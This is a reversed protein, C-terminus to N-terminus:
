NGFGIRLGLQFNPASKETKQTHLDYEQTTDNYTSTYYDRTTNAIGVGIFSEFAINSDQFIQKSIILSIGTKVKTDQKGELSTTLDGSDTYDRNTTKTFVQVGFSWGEIADYDSSPYFKVTGRFASGMAAKSEFTVDSDEEEQGFSSLDNGLFSYTVGASVEASLKKAFRYEGILAFEGTIYAFLDTKVAWKYSNDEGSTTSSTPSYVRVKVPQNVTDTKTQACLSGGMLIAASVFLLSKKM